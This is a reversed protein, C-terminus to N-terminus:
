LTMEGSSQSKLTRYRSRLWFINDLPNLGNRDPTEVQLESVLRYCVWGRVPRAVSSLFATVCGVMLLRPM